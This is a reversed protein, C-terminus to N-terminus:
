DIVRFRFSETNSASSTDDVSIVVAAMVSAPSLNGFCMLRLTAGLYVPEVKTFM